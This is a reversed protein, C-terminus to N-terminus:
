RKGKLLSFQNCEGDHLGRPMAHNFAGVITLVIALGGGEGHIVDELVPDTVAVIAAVRQLVTEGEDHRIPGVGEKNHFISPLLYSLVPLVFSTEQFHIFNLHLTGRAKSEALPWQCLETLM